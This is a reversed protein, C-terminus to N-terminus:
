TILLVIEVIEKLLLVTPIATKLFKLWRGLPDSPEKKQRLMSVFIRREILCNFGFKNVILSLKECRRFDGVIGGNNNSDSIYAYKIM